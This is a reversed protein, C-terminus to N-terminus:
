EEASDEEPDKTEIRDYLRYAIPSYGTLVPASKIEPNPSEPVVYKPLFTFLVLLRHEPSRFRLLKTPDRYNTKGPVNAAVDFPFRNKENLQPAGLLKASGPEIVQAQGGIAAVAKGESLNIFRVTGAPHVAPSDDLFQMTGSGDPKRYMLLLLQDGEEQNPIDIVPSYSTGGEPTQVRRFLQIPQKIPIEVSSGRSGESINFRKPIRTETGYADVKLDVWYLEPTTELGVATASLRFRPIEPAAPPQAPLNGLSFLSLVILCILSINKM